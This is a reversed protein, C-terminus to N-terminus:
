SDGHLQDILHDIFGEDDLEKVWHLDWLSLPDLNKAAPYELTAIEYSNAVAQPTPYPKIKLGSVICGFQRKFEEVDEIGMRKRPEGLAFEVAEEQRLAMWCLAHVIAKVYDRLLASNEKAFRSLCAQAYHGVIPVEPVSLVKLGAALASPLYLPSIFTAICEGGVVKRWQGWRGVEKDKVLVTKVKGDLSMLRLWLTIM